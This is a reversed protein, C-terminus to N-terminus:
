GTSVKLNRTRLLFSSSKSCPRRKDNYPRVIYLVTSTLVITGQRRRRTQTGLFVGYQLRLLFQDRGWTSGSARMLICYGHKQRPHTWRMSARWRRQAQTPGGGGTTTLGVGVGVGVGACGRALLEAVRGFFPRGVGMAMSQSRARASLPRAHGGSSNACSAPSPLCCMFSNM